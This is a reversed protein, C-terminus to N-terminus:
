PVVAYVWRTSGAIEDDDETEGDCAVTLRGHETSFGTVVFLELVGRSPADVQVAASGGPAAADQFSVSPGGDPAYSIVLLDPDPNTAAARYRASITGTKISGKFVSTSM